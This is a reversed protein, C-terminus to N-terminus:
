RQAGAGLKVLWKVRGDVVDPKAERHHACTQHPPLFVWPTNLVNCIGFGFRGMQAAGKPSWHLCSTCTTM